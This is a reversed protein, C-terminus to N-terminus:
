LTVEASEELVILLGDETLVNEGSETLMYQTGIFTDTLEPRPDYVSQKDQVGRVFDQPHRPEYCSYCVVLGTWEKRKDFSKYKFGCRDCIFNHSGHSYYDAKGM